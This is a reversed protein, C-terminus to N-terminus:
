ATLRTRMPLATCSREAAYDAFQDAITQREQTTYLDPNARWLDELVDFDDADTLDAHLAEKLALGTREASQEFAPSMMAVYLRIGARGPVRGAAWEDLLGALRARFWDSREESNTVAPGCAELLVALREEVVGEFSGFGTRGDSFM